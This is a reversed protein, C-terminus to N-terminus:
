NGLVSNLRVKSDSSLKVPKENNFKLKSENIRDGPSCPTAEFIGVGANDATVSLDSADVFEDYNIDTPIWCGSVSNVADNEVPAIDSADIAGDQNVDGGFFNGNALGNSGFIDAASGFTYSALGAAFTATGSSWSKMHTITQCELTYATGNAVATSFIYKPTPDGDTIFGSAYDIFTCGDYLSVFMDSGAPGTRGELGATVSLVKLAPGEVAGRWPYVSAKANGFMDTTVSALPKANLDGYNMATPIYAIDYNVPHNASNQEYPFSCWVSKWSIISTYGFTGDVFDFHNGTGTAGNSFATNYDSATVITSPEVLFDLGVHQSTASAERLNLAVNNYYEATSPSNASVADPIDFILCRTDEALTGTGAIISTNNYVKVNYDLGSPVALNSLFIGYISTVLSNPQAMRIFNNQIVINTVPNALPAASRFPIMLMGQLSITTARIGNDAIDYIRNNKISINGMAQMGISRSSTGVGGKYVTVDDYIENNDCVVNQVDSGIFIALSSANRVKNYTFTTNSNLYLGASGFVQLTRDGGSLNCHDVTNNDNGGTGATSQAINICRGGTIPTVVTPVTVNLYRVTNGQAGNSMTIGRVGGGINTCNISLSQAGTGNIRGDILVNDSGNLTILTAAGAYTLTIGAASPYIKCSTFGVSGITGAVAVPESAGIAVTVDGNHLVGVQALALNLSTYNTPGVTGATATVTVQSFSNSSAFCLLAAFLIAYIKKM